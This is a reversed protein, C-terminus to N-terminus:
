TLDVVTASLALCEAGPQLPWDLRNHMEGSERVARLAALDVRAHVWGAVNVDGEAAVGTMTLSPEAPLYIGAAGTNRDVVPSWPADGITPSIATVVGNELARALAATRVRNFGSALETCTPIVIVDAGTETQARVLLPFESDYCIAIGIRGLTTDFVNLASGAAMGWRREFPTLILKDQRGMRGDPTILRSANVFRGDDRRCPGSPAAIHVGHHRALEGIYRDMDTLRNAVASLTRTLDGAVDPGAIAALEIAGYEPFVLLEAGTAKGKAVWDSAKACWAEFTATADLPYQACAITIADPTRM